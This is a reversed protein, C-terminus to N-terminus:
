CWKCGIAMKKKVNHYEEGTEIDAISVTNKNVKIIKLVQDSYNTEQKGFISKKKLVRVLDGIEFTPETTHIRVTKNIADNIIQSTMLPNSAEMPTMGIGRNFTNNLNEILKKM